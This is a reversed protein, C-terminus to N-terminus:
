CINLKKNFSFHEEKFPSFIYDGDGEFQGFIYYPNTSLVLQILQILIMISPIQPFINIIM